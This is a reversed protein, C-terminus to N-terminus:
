LKNYFDLNKKRYRFDFVKVQKVWNILIFKNFFDQIFKLYYTKLRKRDITPRIINNIQLKSFIKLISALINGIIKHNKDIILNFIIYFGILYLIFSYFIM